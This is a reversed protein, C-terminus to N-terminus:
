KKYFGNYIAKQDPGSDWNGDKIRAHINSSLKTELYSYGLINMAMGWQYNGADFQNYAVGNILKLSNPQTMQNTFDMSGFRISEMATAGLKSFYNSSSSLVPSIGNIINKVIDKSGFKTDIGSLPVKDTNYTALWDSPDNFLNMLAQADKADNFTFSQLIENEKNVIAGTIEVKGDDVISKINGEEDFELRTDLMGSPDIRLLPNNQCYNYPTLGPRSSAMPDVILWRGLDSDYYRAGFYDYNTETDSNYRM